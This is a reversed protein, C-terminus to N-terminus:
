RLLLPLAIPTRVGSVTQGPHQTGHSVVEGTAERVVITVGEADTGLAWGDCEHTITGVQAGSGDYLASRAPLSTGFKAINETHQIFPCAAAIAIREGASEYEAAAGACLDQKSTLLKPAEDTSNSGCAATLAIFLLGLMIRRIRM